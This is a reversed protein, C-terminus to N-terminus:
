RRVVAVTTGLLLFGGAILGAWVWPSTKKPPPMIPGTPGKVTPTPSLLGSVLSTALNTFFGGATSPTSPAAGPAAGGNTATTDLKLTGVGLLDGSNATDIPNTDAIVSTGDIMPDFSLGSGGLLSESSGAVLGFGRYGHTAPQPPGILRPGPRRHRYKRSRLAASFGYNSVVM